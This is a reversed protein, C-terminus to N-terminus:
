GRAITINLIRSVEDDVTTKVMADKASSAELAIDLDSRKIKIMKGIRNARLRGSSIWQSITGRSAGAIKAAENQNL